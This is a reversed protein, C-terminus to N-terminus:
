MINHYSMAKWGRPRELFNHMENQFQKYFPNTHRMPRVHIPRGLLSVRHMQSRKCSRFTNFSPSRSRIFRLLDSERRNQDLHEPSDMETGDNGNDDITDTSNDLDEDSIQSQRRSSHISNARHRRRAVDAFEVRREPRGTKAPPHSDDFVEEVYCSADKPDSHSYCYYHHQSGVFDNVTSKYLEPTRYYQDYQPDEELQPEYYELTSVFLTDEGFMPLIAIDSNVIPIFISDDSAISENNPVDFVPLVTPDSQTYTSYSSSSSSYSSLKCHAPPSALGSSEPITTITGDDEGSYPPLVNTETPDSTVVTTDLNPFESNM